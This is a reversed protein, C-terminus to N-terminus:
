LPQPGQARILYPSNQFMGAGNMANDVSLVTRVSEELSWFGAKLVKSRIMLKLRACFKKVKKDKSINPIASVVNRADNVNTPIM